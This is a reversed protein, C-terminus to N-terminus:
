RAERLAFNYRTTLEANSLGRNYIAIEDLKVNAFSAGSGRAGFGLNDTTNVNHTAGGKTKIRINNQFVELTSGIRRVIIDVWEANKIMIWGTFFKSAGDGIMVELQGRQPKAIQFGKLDSVWGWKSLIDKSNETANQWLRFCFTFGGTGFNFVENHPCRIYEDVGDFELAKSFKSIGSDILTPVNTPYSPYPTGDIGQGSIDKIKGSVYENFSWYGCLGTHTYLDRQAERLFYHYGAIKLGSAKASVGWAAKDGDSMNQWQAVLFETLRRQGRQKPSPIKRPKNYGRVQQGSKRKSFTLLKGVSGHATESLLPGTIKAM